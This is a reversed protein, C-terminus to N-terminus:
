REFEYGCGACTYSDRPDEVFWGHGCKICYVNPTARWCAYCLGKVNEYSCIVDCMRCHYDQTTDGYACDECLGDVDGRFTTETGCRKCYTHDGGEFGCGLCLKGDMGEDRAIGCDMCYGNNIHRADALDIWGAGSKLRGWVLVGAYDTNVRVEEVITYTGRDRIAGVQDYDHGPGAFIPLEANQVRLLYPEFAPETIQTPATSPETEEVPPQTMQTPPVTAETQSPTTSIQPPATTEAPRPSGCGALCLTLLIALVAYVKKM